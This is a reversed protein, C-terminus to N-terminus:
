GIPRDLKLRRSDYGQGDYLSRAAENAVNVSLATRECGRAAAWEHARDLLATAVGEGRCEPRVYVEGIEGTPGRDFVPAPESRSLAVYGILDGGDDAVFTAADDDDFRERRYDVAAPRPNEVLANYDDLEAMEGAFPLWCDDVLRGLEDPEIPRVSADCVASQLRWLRLHGDIAQFPFGACIHESSM